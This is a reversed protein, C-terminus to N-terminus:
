QKKEKSLTKSVEDDLAESVLRLHQISKWELGLLKSSQKDVELPQGVLIHGKSSADVIALNPMKCKIIDHIAYKIPFKRIKSKKRTFFGSYMSGPFAGLMNALSGTIELEDDHFLVPLSIVFSEKLIKPYMISEFKM